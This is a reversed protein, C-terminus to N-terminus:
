QSVVGERDKPTKWYPLHLIVGKQTKLGGMHCSTSQPLAKMGPEGQRKENEKQTKQRLMPSDREVFEFKWEANAFPLLNGM